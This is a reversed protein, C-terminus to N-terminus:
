RNRFETQYADDVASNYAVDASVAIEGRVDLETVTIAGAAEETTPFFPAGPQDALFYDGLHADCHGCHNMYYRGYAKSVDQRYRPAVSRIAKVIPAPWFSVHSLIWLAGQPIAEWGGEREFDYPQGTQEELDAESALDRFRTVGVMLVRTSEGCRWCQQTSWVLYFPERAILNPEVAVEPIWKGFPTPDVGAPVYWTRTTADWRAGLAEADEKERFPVALEVRNM